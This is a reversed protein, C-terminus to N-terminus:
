SYVVHSSGMCVAFMGRARENPPLVPLLAEDIVQRKGSQSRQQLLKTGAYALTTPRQRAMDGVNIGNPRGSTPERRAPYEFAGEDHPIGEFVRTVPGVYPVAM